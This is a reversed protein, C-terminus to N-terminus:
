EAARALGDFSPLVVRRNMLGVQWTEPFLTQDFIRQGDPYKAERDETNIAAERALLERLGAAAKNLGAVLAAQARAIARDVDDQSLVIRRQDANQRLERLPGVIRADVGDVEDLLYWNPPELVSFDRYRPPWFGPLKTARMVEDSAIVRPVHFTREYAIHSGRDPPTRSYASKGLLTIVVDTKFLGVIQAAFVPYKAVWQAHDRARRTQDLLPKRKEDRAAEAAEAERALADLDAALRAAIKRDLVRMRDEGAMAELAERTQAISRGPLYSEFPPTMQALVQDERQPAAAMAEDIASVASRAQDAAAKFEGASATRNQLAAHAQQLAAVPNDNM